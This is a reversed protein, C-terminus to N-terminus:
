IEKGGSVKYFFDEIMHLEDDLVQERRALEKHDCLWFAPTSSFVLLGFAEADINMLEKSKRKPPIISM